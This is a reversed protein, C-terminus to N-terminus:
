DGFIFVIIFGIVMERFLNWCVIEFGDFLEGLELMFFLNRDVKSEYYM